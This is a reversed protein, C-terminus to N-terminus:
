GIMREYDKPKFMHGLQLRDVAYMIGDLLPEIGNDYELVVNAIVEAVQRCERIYGEHEVIATGQKKSLKGDKAVQIVGFLTGCSELLQTAGKAGIGPAGKYGDSPDGVLAKWQPVQQPTIGWTNMLEQENIITFDPKVVVVRDGRICQYLDKDSSLIAVRKEELWAEHALTAIVDDAEYIPSHVQIWSTYMLLWRCLEEQDQVSRRMADRRPDPKKAKYEPMIELRNKPIGEWAIYVAANPTYKRFKAITKALGYVGGTFQWGNTSQYGVHKHSHVARYLLNRGDVLLASTQDLEITM